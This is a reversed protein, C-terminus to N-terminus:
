TSRPPQRSATAFTAVLGDVLKRLQANFERARAPSHRELLKGQNNVQELIARRDKEIESMM